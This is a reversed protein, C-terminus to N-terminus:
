RFPAIEEGLMRATVSETASERWAIAAEIYYKELAPRGDRLVVADSLDWKSPDLLMRTMDRVVPLGPESYAATSFDKAEVSALFILNRGGEEGPTVFLRTDFGADVLTKYVCRAPRGIRGTTYGYFNIMML